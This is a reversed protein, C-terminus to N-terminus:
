SQKDLLKRTLLDVVRDVVRGLFFVLNTRIVVRAFPRQRREAQEQALGHDDGPRGQRRGMPVM